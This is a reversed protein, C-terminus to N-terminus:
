RLGTAGYDIKDCWAKPQFYVKVRRDWNKKEDLKSVNEKVVPFHSYM